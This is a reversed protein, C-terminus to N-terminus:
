SKTQSSSPSYITRKVIVSPSLSVSVISSVKVIRFRGGSIITSAEAYETGTREETVNSTVWRSSISVFLGIEGTSIDQCVAQSSPLVTLALHM